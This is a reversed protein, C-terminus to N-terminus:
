EAAFDDLVVFCQQDQELADCIRENPDCMTGGEKQIGQANGLSRGFSDDYRAIGVHGLWKITQTANGCEVVIVKDRVHVHVRM